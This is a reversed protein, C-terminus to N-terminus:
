GKAVRSSRRSSPATTELVLPLPRRQDQQVAPREVPAHPARLDLGEPSAVPHDRRVASAEALRGRARVQVASGSSTRRSSSARPGGLRRGPPCTGPRPPRRKAQRVAMGIPQPARASCARRQVAQRRLGGFLRDGEAVVPRHGQGPVQVAQAPGPAGMRQHLARLPGAARHEAFDQLAVVGPVQGVARGGDRHVQGADQGADGRRGQDEGALPVRGIPLPRGVHQRGGQRRRLPRPKLAPVQHVQGVRVPKLATRAPNRSRYRGTVSHYGAAEKGGRNHRLPM